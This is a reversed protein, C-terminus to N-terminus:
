KRKKLPKYSTIVMGEIKNEKSIWVSLYKIDQDKETKANFIYLETNGFLSSKDKYISNLHELTITGFNKENSLCTESLKQDMFGKFDISLNGDSFESYDKSFCKNLYSQIFTQALAIKEKDHKQVEIKKYNTQCYILQSFVFSLITLVKYM